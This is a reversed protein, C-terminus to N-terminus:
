LGSRLNSGRLHKGSFDPCPVYPTLSPSKPPPDPKRKQIAGKRGPTFIFINRRPENM